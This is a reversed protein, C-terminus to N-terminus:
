RLGLLEPTSNPTADPRGWGGKDKRSGKKGGEATPVGTTPAWVGKNLSQQTRTGRAFRSFISSQM